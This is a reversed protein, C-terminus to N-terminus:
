EGWGYVDAADCIGFYSCSACTRANFKTPFTEQEYARILKAIGKMVATHSQKKVPEVTIHNSVPYYWGWMKMEYDRSLGVEHLREEPANDFLLKYFAMEKRMSTVKYDKWPGTKLEMPIYMDREFFMRDIIGQLHVVYDRQLDVDSYDEAHITIEADLMAENVVPLFTDSTEDGMAQVFRDAEFVAMSYYIDTYDDIPYLSYSYDVLEQYEMDAAKKIDFANFFDERSNHIITGKYMAESTDQPLKEIYNYQYKKPCWQFTGNSSKTIKLVPKTEDEYESANWQYTYEKM